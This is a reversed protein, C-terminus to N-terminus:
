SLRLRSLHLGHPPPQCHPMSIVDSLPYSWPLLRCKPTPALCRNPILADQWLQWEAYLRINAQLYVVHWEYPLLPLPPTNRLPIHCIPIPPHTNPHRRCLCPASIHMMYDTQPYLCGADCEPHNRPSARCIRSDCPAMIPYHTVM